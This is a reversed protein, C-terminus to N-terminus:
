AIHRTNHEVLTAGWKTEHGSLGKRNLSSSVDKYLAVVNGRSDPLLFLIALYSIIGVVSGTLLTLFVDTIPFLKLLAFLIAMMGLGAFLPSAITRFFLGITLSTGNFSYCLKPIMLVITTLVQAYAIGIAGYKIGIIMFIILIISHALVLVLYKKPKRFTILVVMYTSIVPGTAAIIAFVRIFPVVGIWKVGLLFLVIERAFVGILISIPIMMVGILFLMKQYYRRYREPDSQLRSLTPQAVDVIPRNLQEVPLLVLNFAQRYIGLSVAGFFKGVLLGDIKSIIGIILNTVSLDRGFRLLEKTGVNRKPLGPIWPCFFWIGASNLLNLIVERWVLAWYEYGGIAMLVAAAISLLNASLQILSIQGQKLQRSLLAKHQVNLNSLLFTVSIVITIATLRQDGYFKSILISFASFFLFLLMGTAMNIWFLNSVQLHTINDKQITATALGLDRIVQAMGTVATVMAVLGFHEPLLLRALIIASIFRLLFNTGQGTAMFLAARVSKQKLNQHVIKNGSFREFKDSQAM